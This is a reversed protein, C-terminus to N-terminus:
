KQVIKLNDLNVTIRFKGPWGFKISISITNEDEMKAKIDLIQEDMDHYRSSCYRGDYKDEIEERNEDIYNMIYKEVTRTFKKNLKPQVSSKEITSKDRTIKYRKAFLTIWLEDANNKLKNGYIM